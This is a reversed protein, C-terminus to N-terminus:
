SAIERSHSLYLTKKIKIKTFDHLFLGVPGSSFINCKQDINCMYLIYHLNPFFSVAVHCWSFYWVYSHFAWVLEEQVTYIHGQAAVMKILCVTDSDCKQLWAQHNSLKVGTLHLLYQSGLTLGLFLATPPATSERSPITCIRLETEMTVQAKEWQKLNLFCDRQMVSWMKVHKTVVWSLLVLFVNVNCIGRMMLFWRWWVFVEHEYNNHPGM